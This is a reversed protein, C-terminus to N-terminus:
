FNAFRPRSRIGRSKLVVTFASIGLDRVAFSVEQIRVKEVLDTLFEIFFQPLTSPFRAPHSKRDLM